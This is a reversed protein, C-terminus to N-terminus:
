IKGEHLNHHSGPGDPEHEHREYRGVVDIERGLVFIFSNVHTNPYVFVLDESEAEDTSLSWEIHSVCQTADRHIREGQIFGPRPLDHGRPASICGKKRQQKQLISM